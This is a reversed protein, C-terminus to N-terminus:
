IEAIKTVTGIVKDGIKVSIKTELPFFIDVRSGFKIFGFEKGQIATDGQKLPAVIRRAVIGAIQRFLIEQGKESKVVISSRENETSSKPNRAMLFLGPHYKFYSVIGNIPFWNIHVNWASMFISVQIRKDKFYEDETTEEIVVVTGDAPSLFANEVPTPVRNPNRFFNLIFLYVCFTIIGTSISIVPCKFIAYIIANITLLVILVIALTTYGERHITM